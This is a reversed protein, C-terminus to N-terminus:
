RDIISHYMHWTRFSVRIKRFYDEVESGRYKKFFDSCNNLYSYKFSEMLIFFFVNWSLTKQIRNCIKIKNPQLTLFSNSVPFERQNKKGYILHHFISKWFLNFLLKILPKKRKFNRNNLKLTEHWKEFYM